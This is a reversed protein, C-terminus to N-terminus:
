RRTRTSKAWSHLQMKPGHPLGPAMVALELVLTLLLRGLGAARAWTRCPDPVAYGHHLQTQSGGNRPKYAKVWNRLTSPPLPM